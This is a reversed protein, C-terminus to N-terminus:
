VPKVLGPFGLFCFSFGVRVRINCVYIYLLVPVLFGVSVVKDWKEGACNLGQGKAKGKGREYVVFLM